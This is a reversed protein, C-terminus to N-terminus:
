CKGFIFRGLRTFYLRINLIINFFFMVERNSERTLKPVNSNYDILYNYKSTELIVNKPIQIETDKEFEFDLNEMVSDLLKLFNAGLGHKSNTFIEGNIIEEDIETYKIDYIKECFKKKKHAKILHDNKGQYVIVKAKTYYKSYLYNLNLIEKDDVISGAMYDYIVKLKSSGQLHTLVRSSPKIYQPYIWASNDIVLSVFNPAFINCLHCLYAGHSNGYLIVKKSNFKDNKYKLLEMVSLIATLNDMTQMLGMDNFCHINEETLDEYVKMSIKYQKCLDLFTDMNFTGDKYIFKQEEKSFYKLHKKELIIKKPKQMFQSGFYDCQITVLNYKDAFTSRLKKFVNSTASGRFGAIYLLFGTDKNIGTEPVSYYVDLTRKIPVEKENYISLLADITIKHNLAM